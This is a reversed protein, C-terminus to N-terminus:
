KLFTNKQFFNFINKIVDDSDMIFTHGRPVILFGKMEKLKASKVSVKGDNPGSFLYSFWPDSSSNGTIIGINLPIPKLQNPLSNPDTGLQEGAPGNFWKFWSKTKFADVIESGHNPPALMVVAKIKNLLVQDNFNQFYHRVLIGGMSHTVFYIEDANNTNCFDLGKKVFPSLDEIKKETSPYTENWVIFNQKKFEKTIKSMSSSKRALGHLSILCKSKNSNAHVTFLNTFQILFFVCIFLKM